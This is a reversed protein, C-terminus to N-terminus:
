QVLEEGTEPDFGEPVLASGNEGAAAKQQAQAEPDPAREQIEQAGATNPITPKVRIAQVTQKFAEVDAKYLAIPKGIWGKVNNGYMKAIAGANTKNCLLGKKKGQFYVIPKSSDGKKNKDYFKQRKVESIVAVAVKGDPLDWVGLFEQDFFARYDVTM